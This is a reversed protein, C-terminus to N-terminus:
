SLYKKVVELQDHYKAIMDIEGEMAEIMDPHEGIGVPMNLYVELNAKHKAIHGLAHQKLADILLPKM